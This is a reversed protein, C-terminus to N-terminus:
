SIRCSHDTRLCQISCSISCTSLCPGRHRRDFGLGFRWCSSSPPLHSLSWGHELDLHNDMEEMMMWPRMMPVWRMMTGSTPRTWTWSGPLEEQNWNLLLKAPQQWMVWLLTPQPTTTLAFMTHHAGSFNVEMPYGTSCPNELMMTKVYSSGLLVLGDSRASILPEPMVGTTASKALKSHSTSVLMVGYFPEDSSRIKIPEWWPLKPLQRIPWCRRLPRLDVLSRHRWTRLSFIVLLDLSTDWSGNHLLFDLLLARHTSRPFSTLCCQRSAMKPTSDVTTCTSRLPNEFCSTAASLQVLDPTLKVLPWLTPSAWTLSSSRWRTLHGDVDKMPSWNVLLELSAFGDGNLPEGSTMRKRATSWLLKRLSQLSTLWMFSPSRRTALRWGCWMLKFWMTSSRPLSCPPLLLHTPSKTAAAPQVTITAPWKWCWRLLAVAQLCSWWPQPRLTVLIEICGKSLAFQMKDIRLWFNWWSEPTLASRMSLALLTWFRRCKMLWWHRQLLELSHLSTTRWTASAFDLWGQLVKWPVTNMTEKANCNFNISCPERPPRCALQSRPLSGSMMLTLVNPEMAANTLVLRTALCSAWLLQAGLFRELLNSWILTLEMKWRLKMPRGTSSWTPPMIGNEFVKFSKRSNQLGPLLLSCLAWTSAFQHWGFNMLYKLMLDRWFNADIPHSMLTGDLRWHSSKSMLELAKLLPLFEASVQTSRGCWGDDQRSTCSTPSTPMTNTTNLWSCRKWREYNIDIFDTNLLIQPMLCRSMLWPLPQRRRRSSSLPFEWQISVVKLLWGSTLTWTWLGRFTWRNTLNGFHFSISEMFDLQPMEGLHTKSSWKAASFIWWWALHKSLQAAVFCRHRARWSFFKLEAMLDRWACQCRWSGIAGVRVMVVLIFSTDAATSSSRTSPTATPPWTTSTDALQATDACFRLHARIWCLWMMDKMVVEMKFLWMPPRWCPWQNPPLPQVNPELLKRLCRVTPLLTDLSGVDYAVYLLKPVPKRSPRSWQHQSSSTTTPSGKQLDVKRNGRRLDKAVRRLHLARPRRLSALASTVLQLIALHSSRCTGEPSAFTQSASARTSTHLMLRMMCMSTRGNTTPPVRMLRMTPLMPMLPHQKMGNMVVLNRQRMAMTPVMMQGNQTDMMLSTMPRTLRMTKLQM